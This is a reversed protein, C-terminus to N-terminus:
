WAHRLSGLLHPNHPLVTSAVSGRQALRHLLHLHGLVRLVRAREAALIRHLPGVDPDPLARLPLDGKIEKRKSEKGQKRDDNEIHMKAALDDGSSGVGVGRSGGGGESAGDASQVLGLLQLRPYIFPSVHKRQQGSCSKVIATNTTPPFLSKPHITDSSFLRDKIHM